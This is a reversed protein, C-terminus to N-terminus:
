RALRRKQLRKARSKGASKRRLRAKQSVSPALSPFLLSQVAVLSRFFSAACDHESASAGLAPSSHFGLVVLLRFAKSMALGTEVAVLETLRYAEPDVRLPRGKM